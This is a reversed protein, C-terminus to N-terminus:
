RRGKSRRVRHAQKYRRKARARERNKRAIAAAHWEDLARLLADMEAQFAGLAVLDDVAIM